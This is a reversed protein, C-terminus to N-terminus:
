CSVANPTSSPLVQDHAMRATHPTNDRANQFAKDAAVKPAIDDRIRLKNPDTEEALLTARYYDQFALTITESNNQFDLM